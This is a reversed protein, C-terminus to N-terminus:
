EVHGGKSEIPKLLHNAIRGSIRQASESENPVIGYLAFLPSNVSTRLVAPGWVGPFAQKYRKTAYALLGEVGREREYSMEDSFLSLQSREHYMERWGPDGFIIDLRRSWEEPPMEGVPLMRFIASLPFLVWTDCCTGRLSALTAWELQTACPDIFAVGRSRSWDIHRLLAPLAQNVDGCIFECRGHCEPFREKIRAELLSLKQADLEIFVFHNFGRGGASERNVSAEIARLSSGVTFLAAQNEDVSVNETNASDLLSSQSKLYQVGEGSFADIYWLDAWSQNQMVMLYQRVYQGVCSLKDLSWKGGFVNHEM